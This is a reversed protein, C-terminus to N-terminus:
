IQASKLRETTNLFVNKNMLAFFNQQESFETANEDSVKKTAGKTIM